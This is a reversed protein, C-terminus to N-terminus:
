LHAANFLSHGPQGRGARYSGEDAQESGNPADDISKGAEAASAGGAKTSNSGTNGFREHGGGGSEAGRDGGDNEVIVKQLINVLKARFNMSLQLTSLAADEQPTIFGHREPCKGSDDIGQALGADIVDANDRLRKRFTSPCM